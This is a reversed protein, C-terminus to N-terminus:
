GSTSVASAMTELYRSGLYAGARPGSGRGPSSGRDRLPGTDATGDATDM